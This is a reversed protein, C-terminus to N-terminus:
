LLKKIIRAHWKKTVDIHFLDVKHDLTVQCTLHTFVVEGLGYMPFHKRWADIDDPLPCSLPGLTLRYPLDGREGCIPCSGDNM